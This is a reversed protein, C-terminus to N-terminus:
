GGGGTYTTQRQHSDIEVEGGDDSRAAVRADDLALIM